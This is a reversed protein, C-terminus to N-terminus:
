RLRGLGLEGLLRRWAHRERAPTVLPALRRCRRLLARYYRRDQEARRLLSRLSATDAVPFLGPYDAGLLGIAARHASSIVPVGAALAESIVNAGGESKSSLVLLRSRAILRRTEAAPREGLWRYRPNSRMEARAQVAMGPQAEGGVQLVRLGSSAPLGRVAAAARFPDKVARLHGVVAIEFAHKRRRSPGRPAVASQLIVRTKPRVARPLDLAARPHLVVLRDALALSRRARPGLASPGYLDTGTLLVVLARKPHLRRFRAIAAANKGAHLALLLEYSAEDYRSRIRARQGLARLHAAVRRATVANGGRLKAGPPTLVLIGARCHRV